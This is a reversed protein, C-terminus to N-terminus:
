FPIDDTAKPAAPTFAARYLKPGSWGRKSPVGDETYRMKLTGGIPSDGRGLKAERFADKVSKLAQNRLFIRRLGDDDDRESLSTQLTIEYVWVPPRTDGHEGIVPKQGEWVKPKGTEMDTEQKKRIDVVRGEIQAGIRDFTFTPTGGGILDDFDSM